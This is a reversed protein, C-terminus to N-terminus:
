IYGNTILWQKSCYKYNQLNSTDWCYIWINNNNCYKCKVKLLNNHPEPLVLELLSTKNPPNPLKIENHGCVPCKPLILKDNIDVGNWEQAIINQSM